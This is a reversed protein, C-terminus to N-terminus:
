YPLYSLSTPLELNDIDYTVKVLSYSDKEEEVYTTTYTYNVRYNVTLVNDKADYYLSRMEVDGIKLSTYYTDDKSDKFADKIDETVKYEKEFDSITKEEDNVYEYYKTIYKKFDKSFNDNDEKLYSSSIYNTLDYENDEKSYVSITKEFELKGITYELKYNGKTVGKIVYVDKEKDSKKKDIYSKSVDKGDLKIKSNKATEIVVKTVNNPNYLDKVNYGDVRKITIKEILYKDYIMYSKGSKEFEFTLEYKEKNEKDRYVLIVDSGDRKTDYNDYKFSMDEDDIIAEIQNDLSVFYGDSDLPVSLYNNSITKKSSLQEFAKSAITEVSTMKEGVKYLAFCAVILVLIIGGITKQKKSLSTSTESKIEEKAATKKKTTKKTEKVESDDLKNGCKECFKSSSDNKAGCKECFM